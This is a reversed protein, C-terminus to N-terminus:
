KDKNYDKSIKYDHANIAMGFVLIYSLIYIWLMLIAINTLSGYFIDYNNFNTVYYSYCITVLSWLITTFISGRTNYKSPIRADPAITYILKVTLFVILFGIPWKLLVFIQYIFGSISAFFKSDFIFHVIHNGFALVIMTFIFLAVLLITLLFAKIHRAIYNSHKIGYLTNSTIIISHPGNSALLFGIIMTVGLTLNLGEGNIFPVLIGAIGEPLFNNITNIVNDLSVNITSCIFGILVIIPIISLVLFFALQGPLIKMEPKIVMDYIKRVFNKIREMKKVM